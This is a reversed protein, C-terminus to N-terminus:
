LGYFKRVAKNFFLYWMMLLSFCLSFVVLPIDTQFTLPTAMFISSFLLYLHRSYKARNIILVGCIPMILGILAMGVGYGKIWLEGITVEQGDMNIPLDPIFSIILLVICFLAHVTLFTLVTPMEKFIDFLSFFGRIKSEFIFWKKLLFDNFM